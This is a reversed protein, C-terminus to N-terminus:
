VAVWDQRFVKPAKKADAFQVMRWAQSDDLLARLLLNNLRHGGKHSSYSALLPHGLVYLDGIADLIKHKAFEDSYRLGDDNLVKSEDMVIANEFSGGLALGRSRMTDVDQMFGFTRARAIEQVYSVQSFDMEITQGTADIAPHGFDISFSLKFGFYPNLRAWAGGERVEIPKLVELFQKPANQEVLGVSQILYVFSGASGDLIPIETADVEIIANDVGLGFLASMLHEITAVKHQMQTQSLGACLTTAMRTDTIHHANVKIDLPLPLDVRRFVIGTNIPAPSISLQVRQGSHIGVGSARASSKLTLQRFM